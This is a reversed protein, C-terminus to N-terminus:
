KTLACRFGVHIGKYTQTDNRRRGSRLDNATSRFSGGRMVRRKYNKPDLPSGGSTQVPDTSPMKKYWDSRYFDSVFDWMNGAMDNLGYPSQYSSRIGVKGSRWTGCGDKGNTEDMWARKCTAADNGWPYRRMKKQCASTSGGNKECGGRAAKEWEAETPLRKGRWKCYDKANDYTICNVPHQDYASKGWTWDAYKSNCRYGSQTPAKCKGAAICEKWQKQTVHNVDMYYSKSLKIYKQPKEDTQCNSDVSSNCGMWFGGSPVLKMGEAKAVCKSIAAGGAQCGYWKGSCSSGDSAAKHVCGGTKSDCSDVTCSNGDDCSKAKGTTCKGSKCTGNLTCLKGDDCTNANNVTVCKGTKSDFTNTTCRNGDDCLHAARACRFGLGHLSTTTASAYRRYTTRLGANSYTFYGGRWVKTSSGQNVIPDVRNPTKYASSSYGDQVWEALNGAMDLLGYPSAGAPRSGVPQTTNTGCGAKGSGERMVTDKCSPKTNGHPWIRHTKSCETLKGATCGGTAAREWEAETPLRGGIWKCYQEAGAWQVGNVPHNHRAPNGYNYPYFSSKKHDWRPYSCAKAAVCEAYQAVTTERRKIWHGTLKVLHRPQENTACAPDVSKDCGM